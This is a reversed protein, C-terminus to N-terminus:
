KMRKDKLRKEIKWKKTELNGEVHNKWIQKESVNQFTELCIWEEEADLTM